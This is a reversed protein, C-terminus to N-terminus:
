PYRTRMGLVDGRALTRAQTAGAAIAYYMTLASSSNAHDLGISHGSEHTAVAQFDGNVHRIATRRARPVASHIVYFHVMPKVAFLRFYGSPTPCAARLPSDPGLEADAPSVPPM